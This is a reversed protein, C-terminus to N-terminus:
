WQKPREPTSEDMQDAIWEDLKDASFRWSGGVKAAPLKDAELLKYLTHKSVNLYAAAEPLRLLPRGSKNVL